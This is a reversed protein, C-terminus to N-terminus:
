SFVRGSSIVIVEPNADRIDAGGVYDNPIQGIPYYDTAEIFCYNSNYNGNECRIGAARHSEAEYEFVAVEMGKFGTWHGTSAAPSGNWGFDASIDAITEGAGPTLPISWLYHAMTSFQTGAPSYNNYPQYANTGNSAPYNGGYYSGGSMVYGETPFGVWGALSAPRTWAGAGGFGEFSGNNVGPGMLTTASSQITMASVIVLIALLLQRKM